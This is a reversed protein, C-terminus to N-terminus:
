KGAKGAKRRVKEGKYRIGKGKYPEPPRIKRIEAAVQGVLRKDIGEVVFETPKVVRFTIGEPAKYLVPHSYGVQLELDQGKLAVRYGTGVLELEKSYGTTVGAIMNAVLTRSLGHREKAAREDNPRQVLLDTEIQEITIPEPVVWNLQGKPGKILVDQGTIKVEVGAPVPIPQRGIRSM